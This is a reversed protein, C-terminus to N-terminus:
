KNFNECEKLKRLEEEYKFIHKRPNPVKYVCHNNCGDCKWLAEDLEEEEIEAKMRSVMGRGAGLDEMVKKQSHNEYLMSKVKEEKEKKEEQREKSSLNYCTSCVGHAKISRM